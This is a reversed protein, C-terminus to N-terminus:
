FLGAIILSSAVSTPGAVTTTPATAIMVWMEFFDLNRGGENAVGQRLTQSKSPLDSTRFWPYMTPTTTLTVSQNPASDGDGTDGMGIFHAAGGGGTYEADWFGKMAIIDSSNNIESGFADMSVVGYEASGDYSLVTTEDVPTDAANIWQGADLNTAANGRLGADPTASAKSNQYGHVEFYPAITSNSLRETISTLGSAMYGAYFRTTLAAVPGRALRYYTLNGGDTLDKSTGSLISTGDVFLEISGSAVNEWVIELFYRTNFSFTSSPGAILTDNADRIYFEITDADGNFRATLYMVRLSDSEDEHAILIQRTESGTDSKNAEWGFGICQKLVADTVYDFPSITFSGNVSNEIYSTGFAPTYTHAGATRLEEPGGTEFSFFNNFTFAM